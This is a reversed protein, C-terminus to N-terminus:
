FAGPGKQERERVGWVGWWDGGWKGQGRQVQVAIIYRSQYASLAPCATDVGREDTISQQVACPTNFSHELPCVERRGNWSSPLCYTQESKKKWGLHGVFLESLIAERCHKSAQSRTAVTLM